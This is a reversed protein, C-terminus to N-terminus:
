PTRRGAREREMQAVLNSVATLPDNGSGEFGGGDTTAAWYGHRHEPFDRVTGDARCEDDSVWELRM